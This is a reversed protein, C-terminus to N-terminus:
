LRNLSSNEIRHNLKVISRILRMSFTGTNDTISHTFIVRMTITRDVTCQNIHRLFPRRSIWKNISMSVKSRHIAVASCSHSVCLCSQTLNRHFQSRIDIFIGYIECWVKILCFFFRGYKRCSKRVKKHISSRSDGNTHCGINRRM